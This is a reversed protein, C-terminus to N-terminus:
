VWREMLELAKKVIQENIFYKLVFEKGAEAIRVRLSANNLYYLIKARLDDKGDYLVLHKGDVFGQLILDDPKDTLLMAGCAMAETFKMSLVKYKNVSGVFIKSRQLVDVYKEHIARDTFTIIKKPLRRQVIHKAEVRNPYGKGWSWVASVDIDRKAGRDYYVKHDVSYPLYYIREKRKKILRKFECLSRAFIATYEHSNFYNDHIEDMKKVDVYDTTFHFKPIDVKNMFRLWNRSYKCLSTSIADFPGYEEVIQPVTKRKVFDDHYGKGYLMGDAQKALEERFFRHGWNHAMPMRHSLVLLRM